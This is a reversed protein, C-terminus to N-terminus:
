ERVEKNGARQPFFMEWDVLQNKELLSSSGGDLQLKVLLNKLPMMGTLNLCTRKLSKTKKQKQLYSRLGQVDLYSRLLYTRIELQM